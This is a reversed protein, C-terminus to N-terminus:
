RPKLINKLFFLHNYARFRKQVGADRMRLRKGVSVDLWIRPVNSSGQM